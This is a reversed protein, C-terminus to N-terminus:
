RIPEARRRMEWSEKLADDLLNFSSNVLLHRALRDMLSREQNLRVRQELDHRVTELELEEGAFESVFQMVAYQEDVLIPSSVDGPQMSWLAQRLAEPYSPDLRAIPELLGGRPASADTSVDVAVEGFFEGQEIREIVSRAERLTPLTILRAQRRAGYMVDYMQHIQSETIEVQDRVLARLSANRRLLAEFRRSGLGQRARLEQLLRIAQDPDDSLMRLMTRREAALTDATITIGADRIEEELRRDLAYERIITGGVAETLHAKIEGWDVRRGNIIAVPRADIVTAIVDPRRADDQPSPARLGRERDTTQGADPSVAADPSTACGYGTLLLLILVSVATTGRPSRKVATRSTDCDSM